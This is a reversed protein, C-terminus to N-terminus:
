YLVAYQEATAVTLLQSLRPIDSAAYDAFANAASLRQADTRKGDVVRGRIRSHLGRTGSDCPVPSEGRSKRGAPHGVVKRDTGWRLSAAASSDSWHLRDRLTDSLDPFRSSIEDISLPQKTERRAEFEGIALQLKWDVNGPLNPVGAVYDEVTLPVDTVWRRQQDTLLVELWQDSDPSQQRKLFDFVDPPTSASNWLQKLQQVLSM